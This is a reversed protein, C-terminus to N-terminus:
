KGGAPGSPKTGLASEIRHLAAGITTLPDEFLRPVDGGCQSPEPRAQLGFLAPTPYPQSDAPLACGACRPAHDPLLLRLKRCGMPAPRGKRAVELTRPNAKGAALSEEALGGTLGLGGLTYAIARAGDASVSRDAWVRELLDRLLACGELVAREAAPQRDAPLSRLAEGLDHLDQSGPLAAPIPQAPAVEPSPLPVLRRGLVAEVVSPDCPKLRALSEGAGEVARLDADLLTCRRLTRRHVGLPLKVLSSLGKPGPSAQKPFLEVTAADPLRGSSEVIVDLLARVARAPRRPELFLWGHVGRGGSDFLALELGLRAAAARLAKAYAAIPPYDVPRSEPSTAEMRAVADASVDVDIVGFSCTGDPYLLYQGITRTGELHASVVSQRLPERIPRYITRGSKHRYQEAFLDRRGGFFRLFAEVEQEAPPAGASQVDADFPDDEGDDTRTDPAQADAPELPPAFRAALADDGALNAALSARVLLAPPLELGLLAALLARAGADDGAAVARLAAAVSQAGSTM